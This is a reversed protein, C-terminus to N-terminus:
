WNQTLVKTLGQAIASFFCPLPLVELQTCPTGKSFPPHWTSKQKRLLIILVGQSVYSLLHERQPWDLLEKGVSNLPHHLFIFATLFSGASVPFSRLPRQSILLRSVIVWSESTLPMQPLLEAKHETLKERVLSFIQAAVAWKCSLSCFGLPTSFMSQTSANVTGMNWLSGAWPFNDWVNLFKENVHTGQHWWKEEKRKKGKRIEGKTSDAVKIWVLWRSGERSPLM